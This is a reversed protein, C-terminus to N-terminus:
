FLFKLSFQIHRETGANTSTVKGFNSDSLGSDPTGFQPTNFLNFFESRFQLRYRETFAFDKFVSFDINKLSPGYNTNDGLNGETLAAPAMFNSTNFWESPNRGGAPAANPNAGQVLTPFCGAWVGQCGSASVTYPQGSHLSVITNIQWHGVVADAARSMSNGFQKGRGFPLDYTLGTTFNERIDWAASSYDLGYNTNDKTQFNNSGSLTTGTNALAHGYTFSTIFQLGKSLHRELKATMAEYNGFGFSATGSISGIDPYMRLSNCNISSNLTALNPCPNDDPQFLQHSSHNGQYGLELAMEHGLDQQVAVNWKQVMPNDFNEAVERFQLSSVPYTTFVTTPYGTSIGGTAAGNAFFPDPQFSGVGAPRNLQPSENFPASEGRNPNGGQQEEGGYSAM